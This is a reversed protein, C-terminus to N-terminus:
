PMIDLQMRQKARKNNLYQRFIFAAVIGVAMATILLAIVIGAVTGGEIGRGDGGGSREPSAIGSSPELSAIASSPEPSAIPSSPELSSSPGSSVTPRIAIGGGTCCNPLPFLLKSTAECDIFPPDTFVIQAAQWMAQCSKEVYLCEEQCLSSPPLTHTTNGCPPLYYHCIVRYVQEVCNVSHATIITQM